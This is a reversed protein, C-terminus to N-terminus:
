KQSIVCNHSSGLVAGYADMMCQETFGQLGKEVVIGDHIPIATKGLEQFQKLVRDMMRSDTNQLRLGVPKDKYLNLIPNCDVVANFVDRYKFKDPIDGSDRLKYFMKDGTVATQLGSLARRGVGANIIILSSLKGMYRAGKRSFGDVRIEYPDFSKPMKVKHQEYLISLHLSKYDLEVTPSGNVLIRSRNDRRLFDSYLRAGGYIYIRGGSDWDGNYVKKLQIDYRQGDVSIDCSRSLLNYSELMAKAENQYEGLETPIPRGDPGRLEIVSPALYLRKKEAYPSVKEVLYDSMVLRSMETDKPVFKSGEVGWSLVGGKILDIRGTDALWELVRVMGRYSVKRGVEVGDYILPTTYVCARMPVCVERRGFALSHTLNIMLCSIVQDTASHGSRPKKNESWYEERVGVVLPELYRPHKYDLLM